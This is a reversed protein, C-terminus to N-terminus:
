RGARYPAPPEGGGGLRAEPVLDRALRNLMKVIREHKEPGWEAFLEALQARRAAVLRELVDQGASTLVLSAVGSDSAAREEILGREGLEALGARLREENADYARALKGPDVHPDEHV